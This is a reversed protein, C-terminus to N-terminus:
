EEGPHLSLACGEPNIRSTGWPSYKLRNRSSTSAIYPFHQKRSSYLYLHLTKVKRMVQKFHNKIFIANFIQGIPTLVQRQLKSFNGSTRNEKEMLFVCKIFQYIIDIFSKSGAAEILRYFSIWSVRVTIFYGAGHVVNVSHVIGNPFWVYSNNSVLCENEGM